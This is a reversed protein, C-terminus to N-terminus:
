QNNLQKKKLSSRQSLNRTLKDVQYVQKKTQALTNITVFYKPKIRSIRCILFVLNFYLISSVKEKFSRGMHRNIEAMEKAETKICAKYESLKEPLTMNAIEATQDDVSFQNLWGIQRPKFTNNTAPNLCKKSTRYFFPTAGALM